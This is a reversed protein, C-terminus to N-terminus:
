HWLQCSLLKLMQATAGWIAYQAYPVSYITHYKGKVLFRQQRMNSPNLVHEAPAEFLNEVENKDISPVYRSSVISLYPQIIFGTVTPLEPLKGLINERSCLIGTEEHTERIATDILDQDLSEEFRGGPFSVQGPHHRLHKARETFVIHYGSEREVLGILVAAKKLPKQYNRTAAVRVKHAEDYVGPPTLIFKEPLTLTTM